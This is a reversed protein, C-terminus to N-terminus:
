SRAILNDITLIGEGGGISIIWLLLLFTSNYHLLSQSFTTFFTYFRCFTCVTNIQIIELNTYDTCIALMPDCYHSTRSSILRSLIAWVKKFDILQSIVLRCHNKRHDVVYGSKVHKFSIIRFNIRICRYRPRWSTLQHQRLTRPKSPRPSSSPLQPRPALLSAGCTSLHAGM